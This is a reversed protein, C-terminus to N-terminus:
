LSNNLNFRFATVAGLKSYGGIYKSTQTQTIELTENVTQQFLNLFYFCNNKSPNGILLCLVCVLATVSRSLSVSVSLCSLQFDVSSVGFGLLLLRLALSSIFLPRMRPASLAPRAATSSTM